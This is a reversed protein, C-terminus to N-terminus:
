HRRRHRPDPGRGRGAPIPRAGRDHDGRGRGRGAANGRRHVAPRGDPPWAPYRLTGRGAQWHRLARNGAAARRRRDAAPPGRVSSRLPWRVVPDPGPLVRLCARRPGRRHYQRGVPAGHRVHQGRIRRIGADHARDPQGAPRGAADAARPPRRAAAHGHEVHPQNGTTILAPLRLHAVASADYRFFWAFQDADYPNAAVIRSAPDRWLWMTLAIAGVLYYTGALRLTRSGALPRAREAAAPVALIM